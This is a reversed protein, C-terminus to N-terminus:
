VRVHQWQNEVIRYNAAKRKNPIKEVQGGRYTKNKNKKLSSRERGKEWRDPIQVRM